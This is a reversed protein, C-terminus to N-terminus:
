LAQFYFIMYMLDTALHYPPHFRYERRAKGCKRFWQLKNMIQKDDFGRQQLLSYLPDTRIVRVDMKDTSVIQNKYARWLLPLDDQTWKAFPM